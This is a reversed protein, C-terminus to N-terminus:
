RLRLRKMMRSLSPQPLGLLKAAKTQSDNTVEFAKLILARQYADVAEAMPRVEDITFQQTGGNGDSTSLPHSYRVETPLDALTIDTGPSLVVAREIANELERVNGPWPYAQLAELADQDIDMRIRKVERSYREIFYNVLVAIDEPRERLPPLTLSVVNLRFYLDERFAKSQVARRLNQNTAALIRVDLRIDKTGGVRQFEREQLVRLLKVQLNPALDGIEDLFITGGEALEFKGKKLANAGTFAGKEHGFLESELLEPTLATCNVAVFAQDARPSWQHIARAVVEKGTGSEGLLLVTTNAAAVTRALHLTAQMAPSEEGVLHYRDQIVEEFAARANRLNNLIKTRDIAAAALGCLATLLQLDEQSFGEANTTNVAELAGIVQGDQHIPACLISRTRFGTARDVGNFFRPDGTVDNCVAGRDTQAVWGIIGQGLKLQHQEIRAGGVAITFTLCERVGDLFAVSAGESSFLQNTSELLVRLADEQDVTKALRQNVEVLGAIKREITQKMRLATRIRALLEDRNIPKTLFDDAGAEIGKIRDERQGLATMIVIPILRTDPDDKLRKCVEFGDMVPMLIDLLVLDPQEQKVQALAEQGNYATIIAYGRPSLLAEMLKVNKAEDDVVLIKALPERPPM